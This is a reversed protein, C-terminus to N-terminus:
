KSYKTGTPFMGWHSYSIWEDHDNMDDAGQTFSIYSLLGGVSNFQIKSKPTRPATCSALDPVLGRFHKGDVDQFSAFRPCPTAAMEAGALRLLEWTAALRQVRRAAAVQVVVALWPEAAPRDLTTM